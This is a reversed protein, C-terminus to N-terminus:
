GKYVVRWIRGRVSDSIYLSGDPGVALGTPRAKAKGPTSLSDSPIGIFGDAFTEYDGAVAEGEFPLFAVRYGQQVPERNWSGHFAIFAGGQYREPFHGGTYFLLDNPAWHGPFGYVPDDAEACRGVEQGDGGYEPNLLKKGQFHDYYCYPWGFDSGDELAFLEESPLETNQAETYRDPWFRHLDDRGHQAVYLKGTMPNWANAVGNRIGTAYRYGDDAKTQGLQDAQFRWVGGYNDLLPCPDQGEVGPTRSPDQCANSPAGVNVYLSGQDDFEFPKVAHSREREFGSVVTEPAGTPVLADAALPYRMIMTDPAFYLYDGRLHIGTGGDEGFFAISDARGDGDTDRLAAISGQDTPRRLAVYVDGNDRVTLHRARGLTDAVVVACFGDPLQLGDNDAACALNPSLATADADTDTMQTECGAAAIMVLLAPLMWLGNLLKKM